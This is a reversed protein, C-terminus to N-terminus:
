DKGGVETDQSSLLACVSLSQDIYLAGGLCLLDNRGIAMFSYLKDGKPLSEAHYFHDYNYKYCKM